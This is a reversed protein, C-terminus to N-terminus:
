ASTGGARLTSIQVPLHEHHQVRRNPNPGGPPIRFGARKLVGSVIAAPIRHERAMAAISSGELWGLRLAEMVHEAPLEEPLLDGRRRRARAAMRAAQRPRDQEQLWSSVARTTRNLRLGITAHDLGQARLRLCEPGDVTWPRGGVPSLRRHPRITVGASQLLRRIERVSVGYARGLSKLSEDALYRNVVVPIPLQVAPPVMGDGGRKLNNVLARVAEVRGGGVRADSILQYIPRPSCGIAAAIASVRRGQQHLALIRAQEATTLPHGSPV